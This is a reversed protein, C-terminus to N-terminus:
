ESPTSTSGESVSTSSATSTALSRDVVTIGATRVIPVEPTEVRAETLWNNAIQVTSQQSYFFYVGVGILLAFVIVGLTLKTKNQETM